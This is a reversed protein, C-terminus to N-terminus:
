QPLASLGKGCAGAYSPAECGGGCGVVGGDGGLKGGAEGVVLGAPQPVRLRVVTAHQTHLGIV